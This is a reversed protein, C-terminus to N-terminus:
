RYLLDRMKSMTASKNATVFLKERECCKRLPEVRYNRKIKVIINHGAMPHSSCKQAEKGALRASRSQMDNQNLKNSWDAEM